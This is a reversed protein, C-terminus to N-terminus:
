SSQHIEIQERFTQEKRTFVFKKGKLRVACRECELFLACIQYIRSIIVQVQEILMWFYFCCAIFRDVPSIFLQLFQHFILKEFLPIM